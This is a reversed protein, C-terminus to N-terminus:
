DDKAAQRAVHANAARAIARHMYMVLDGFENELQDKTIGDDAAMTVCQEALSVAAPDPADEDPYGDFHVYNDMWNEMWERVHDSM